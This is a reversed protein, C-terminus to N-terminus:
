VLLNSIQSILILSGLAVIIGVVSYLFSKKALSLQNENGGSILYLIGSIVLGIIAIVGFLRLLFQLINILVESIRPADSVVGAHAIEIIKM